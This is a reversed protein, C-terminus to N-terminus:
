YKITKVVGHKDTIKMTFHGNLKQLNDVKAFDGQLVHSEEHVLNDSEDFIRITVEDQAKAAISLLYRMDKGLLRTVNVTKEIKGESYNVREVLKGNVGEIEIYYLGEPMGNFNYPRMFSNSKVLSESYVLHHKADYISLKVRGTKEGKYIVKYIGAKKYEVVAMTAPVTEDNATAAKVNVSFMLLAAIILVNVKSM